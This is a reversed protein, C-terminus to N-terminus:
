AELVRPMQPLAVRRFSPMQPPLVLHLHPHAMLLLHHKRELTSPHENTSEFKLYLSPDWMETSTTKVQPQQPDKQQCIYCM